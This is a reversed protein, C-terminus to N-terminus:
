TFHIDGVDSVDCINRVDGVDGVNVVDVICISRYRRRRYWGMDEAGSLRNCVLRNTHRRLLELPCLNNRM